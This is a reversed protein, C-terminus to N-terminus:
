SRLMSLTQAIERDQFLRIGALGVAGAEVCARANNVTIGGLAFVPIGQRCIDKLATLGAVLSNPADKKEFVPAFVAFDAGDAAARSVEEATHCSVAIVPESEPVGSGGKWISRAASVSIDNSRLHVGDAGCAVAVDVRSNILLRTRAGNGAGSQARISQMADQALLELEHTPIDKERIQIFDVGCAAAETIKNLLSRRRNDANGPFQSRDTIYYLLM